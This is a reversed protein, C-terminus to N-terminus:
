EGAVLVRDGVHRRHRPQARGFSLSHVDVVIGMHLTPAIADGLPGRHLLREFHERVPAALRRPKGFFLRLHEETGLLVGAPSSLPLTAHIVPPPEPMPSAAATSNALAPALTTIAPRVRAVSSAARFCTFASIHTHLTPSLCWTAAAAASMWLRWPRTSMRTFLAPMLRGLRLKWSTVFSPQSSITETFRDPI